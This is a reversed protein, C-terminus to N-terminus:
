VTILALPPPCVPQRSSVSSGNYSTLSFQKLFLSSNFHPNIRFDVSGSIENIQECYINLNKSKDNNRLTYILLEKIILNYSFHTENWDNNILKNKLVIKNNPVLQM